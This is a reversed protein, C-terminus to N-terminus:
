TPTKECEKVFARIEKQTKNGPEVQGCSCFGQGHCRGNCSCNCSYKGNLCRGDCNAHGTAQKIKITRVAVKERCEVLINYGLPTGFNTAERQGVISQCLTYFTRSNNIMTEGYVHENEVLFQGHEPCVAWSKRM